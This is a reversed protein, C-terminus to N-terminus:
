LRKWSFHELEGFESETPLTDGALGDIGQASNVHWAAQWHSLAKHWVAERLAGFLLIVGDLKSIIQRTGGFVETNQNFVNQQNLRMRTAWQSCKEDDSLSFTNHTKLAELHVDCVSYFFLLLRPAGLLFWHICPHGFQGTSAKSESSQHSLTYFMLWLIWCRGCLSGQSKWTGYSLDKARQVKIQIATVTASLSFHLLAGTQRFQGNLVLKCVM